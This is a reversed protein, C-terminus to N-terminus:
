SQVELPIVMIEGKNFVDDPRGIIKYTAGGYSVTRDDQTWTYESPECALVHTSARTIRDSLWRNNSGAQWIAALSLIASTTTTTTGGMGDSTITERNVTVTTLNLMDTLMM